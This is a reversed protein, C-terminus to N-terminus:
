ATRWVRIETDSISRSVFKRMDKPKNSQLANRSKLPLVISDGVAMSLLTKALGGIRREPMPMGKEIEIPGRM